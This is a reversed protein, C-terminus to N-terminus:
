FCVLYPIKTLWDEGFGTFHYFAIFLYQFCYFSVHALKQFIIFLISGHYNIWCLLSCLVKTNEDVSSFDALFCFTEVIPPVLCLFNSIFLLTSFLPCLRHLTYNSRWIGMGMGSPKRMELKHFILFILSSFDEDKTYPSFVDSVTSPLTSISFYFCPSESLSAYQITLSGWSRERYTVLYWCASMSELCPVSFYEEPANSSGLSLLDISISM